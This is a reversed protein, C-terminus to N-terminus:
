SRVSQPADKPTNVKDIEEQSKKPPMGGLVTEAYKGLENGSKVDSKAKAQAEAM